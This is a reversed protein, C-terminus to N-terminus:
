QNKEWLIRDGLRILTVANIDIAKEWGIIDNVVGNKYPTAVAGGTVMVTGDSFCIEANQTVEEQLNGWINLEKAAEPDTSVAERLEEMGEHAFQWVAGTPSLELGVLVLEKGSVSDKYIQNQFDFFRKEQETPTFVMSGLEKEEGNCRFLIHIRMESSGTEAALKDIYATDLYCELTLTQTAADYADEMVAECIAEKGSVNRDPHLRPFAMGAIDTGEIRWGFDAEGPFLAIEEESIPSVDLYIKQFEGDNIASLLVVGEQVAEPMDYETYNEARNEEIQLEDRLQQQRSLHISGVAFVTVTFLVTLVAAILVTRTVKAISIRKKNMAIEKLTQDVMTLYADDIDTLARNLVYHKM